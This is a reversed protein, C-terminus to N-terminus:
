PEDVVRRKLTPLDTFIPNAFNWVERPSLFWSAVIPYLKPLLSSIAVKFSGTYPSQTNSPICTYQRDIPCYYHYIDIATVFPVTNVQSSGLSVLEPAGAVLCIRSRLGLPVMYDQSRLEYFASDGYQM